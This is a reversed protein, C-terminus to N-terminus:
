CSLRAAAGEKIDLKSELYPVRNGAPTKSFGLQVHTMRAIVRYTHSGARCPTQLDRAVVGNEPLDIVPTQARSHWNCGWFGCVKSELRFQVKGKACFSLGSVSIRGNAVVPRPGSGIPGFFFGPAPLQTNYRGIGFPNSCGLRAQEPPAAQAPGTFLASALLAAATAALLFRGSLRRGRATREGTTTPRPRLIKIM